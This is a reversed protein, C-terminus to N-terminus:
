LQKLGNTPTHARAHTSRHTHANVNLIWSHEWKSEATFTGAGKNVREPKRIATKCNKRLGLHISIHIM